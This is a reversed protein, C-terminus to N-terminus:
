LKGWRSSLLTTVFYALLFWELFLVALTLPVGFIWEVAGLRHGAFYSLGGSVSVLTLVLYRPTRNVIASMQVAYWGFLGWLLLLWVPFADISFTFLGTQWNLFDIVIGVSSIAIVLKLKQAEEYICYVLTILSGSILWLLTDERGIVAFFWLIQFWLSSLLVAGNSKDFLSKLMM